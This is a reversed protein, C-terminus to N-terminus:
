QEVWEFEELANRVKGLNEDTIINDMIEEIEEATYKM